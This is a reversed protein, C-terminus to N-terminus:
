KLAVIKVTNTVSNNLAHSADDDCDVKVGGVRAQRGHVVRQLRQLVQGRIVSM